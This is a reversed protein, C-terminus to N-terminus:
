KPNRKNAFYQDLTFKGGGGLALGLFVALYLVLTQPSPARSIELPLFLLCGISLVGILGNIRTFVGVFVGLLAISLILIGAVAIVGPLSLGMGSISEVLAWEAKEWLFLRLLNLQDLLQYYLFILSILIRTVLLGLDSGQPRAPEDKPIPQFPM